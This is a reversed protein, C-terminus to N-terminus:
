QPDVVLAREDIQPEGKEADPLQLFAAIVIADAFDPNVVDTLAVRGHGRLDKITRYLDALEEPSATGFREIKAESERVLGEIRKRVVDPNVGARKALRDTQAWRMERTNKMHEIGNPYIRKQIEDLTLPPLFRIPPASDWQWVSFMSKRFDADYGALAERLRGILEKDRAVVAVREKAREDPSKKQHLILLAFRERMLATLTEGLKEADAEAVGYAIADDVVVERFTLPRVRANKELEAIARDEFADGGLGGKVVAVGVGAVAVALVAAIALAAFRKPAAPTSTSTPAKDPRDRLTRDGDVTRATDSGGSQTRSTRSGSTSKRSSSPDEWLGRQQASKAAAKDAEAGDEIRKMRQRLDEGALEEVFAAVAARGTNVNADKVAAEIADAVEGMDPFRREPDRDLMRLIIADVALTPPGLDTRYRSPARIKGHLIKETTEVPTEGKFLRRGTLLEWFVIGLAFQDSTPTLPQGQLQEPSMYSLTGAVAGTATRSLRDDARAIGFDGVKSVGDHRVFINKPAIDRHIINLPKGDVDKADHAHKLGRASDVVIRAAVALPIAIGRKGARTRLTGCNEGHVYELAIWPLQDSEGVEIITVVNEHSLAGNIRAEDLMRDAAETSEEADPLLKKLVVTRRFKGAGEQRAVFVEGMGGVAIREVIVYRDLVGAAECLGGGPSSTWRLHSPTPTAREASRRLAVAGFQGVIEM